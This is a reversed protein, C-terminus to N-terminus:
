VTIQQLLQLARHQLPNPTTTMLFTSNSRQAVRAQCTNRVITSLEALLTRFSHVPSGDKLTRTAVKEIAAESREAAAVPDRHKKRELDEDAFMLERWAERMHWEVYYALMCLFIHARVRGELHHHIPRIHLDITKMSRFAREVEALAKYSRVAEASNMQKKPVSTRIVYLGDLAAEAAIQKELRQFGFGGEEITLAFHKGVKYKNLVKGVRVGIKDRGALSGNDIRARVKQLEKETAQLLAERKHARLRGLDVNRCAMLREGPFDPHSFELLNREDFLGLQLTGGQVLARIQSSKLATIWALGDLSRLTDIAKHSIMGRDGVLVLRELAFQERLQKVQPMLTSADATNGEYVSIAVPCGARTTLLGYNVQPTNRKGDRSYGIKALPCSNGEFYSSSLDYLALAGESLHRAALKKQIQGQRELLWDMAAYLDTEDANVVGYEEALTTTHWWRTTALKTHPCIIRAAVMACVADREASPRSAILSEFGLRQMAVRVAQVTGHSRSRTTHWLEEVRRMSHGALVARIADIQEDSLASLNALTRKRVKKGERYSERLLYTPRSTRNPVGDIHM